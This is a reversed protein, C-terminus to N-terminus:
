GGDAMAKLVEAEGPRACLNARTWGRWKVGREGLGHALKIMETRKRATLSDDLFLLNRIGTTQFINDVEALIRDTSMIRLGRGWLSDQQCFICRAPCGRSTIINTAPQGAVKRVYESFDLHYRAPFPCQDLPEIKKGELVLGDESEKRKKTKLLAHALESQAGTHSIAEKWALLVESFVIEGEQTIVVDFDQACENPVASAHSGGCVILANPERERLLKSISIGHPMQMSALQLGYVQCGSPIESMCRTLSFDHTAHGKPSEPAFCKTNLDIVVSRALGPHFEDAWAALYLLGLPPAIRPELMSPNPPSVLCVDLAVDELTVIQDVM